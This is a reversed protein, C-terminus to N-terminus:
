EGGGALPGRLHRGEVGHSGNGEADQARIPLRGVRERELQSRVFAAGREPEAGALEVHQVDEALALRRDRDAAIGAPAVPENVRRADDAGDRRPHAGQLPTVHEAHAAREAGRPGDVFSRPAVDDEDGAADPESGKPGGDEVHQRISAAIAPDSEEVARAGRFVHKVPAVEFRPARLEVHVNVDGDVAGRPVPVSVDADHRRENRANGEVPVVADRHEATGFHHHPERHELEQLAANGCGHDVERHLAVHLAGDAKAPMALDPRVEDALVPRDEAVVLQRAKQLDPLHSTVIPKCRVRRPASATRLGVSATKLSADHAPQWSAMRSQSSSSRARDPATSTAFKASADRAIWFPGYSMERTSPETVVGCAASRMWSIRRWDRVRIVI